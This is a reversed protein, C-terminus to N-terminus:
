ADEENVEEEQEVLQDFPTTTAARQEADAIALSYADSATDAHVYDSFPVQDTAGPTFTEMFRPPVRRHVFRDILEALQNEKRQLDRRLRRNESLLIRIALKNFM